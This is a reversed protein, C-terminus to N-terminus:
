IGNCLEKRGCGIVTLDLACQKLHFVDTAIYGRISEKSKHGLVSSVTSLPISKALMANSIRHRFCHLGKEENKEQHVYASKMTKASIQWCAQPSIEKYPPKNIIFIKGSSTEHRENLIYDAISNGVATTLPLHLPEATKQQIINIQKTNWDIDVLNLKAIDCSRVGTEAALLLVAKDRKSHASNILLKVEDEDLVRIIHQPQRIRSPFGCLVSNPIINEHLLYEDFARLANMLVKMSKSYRGNIFRLFKETHKKTICTDNGFNNHLFDMFLGAISVYSRITNKSKDNNSLHDRYERLIENHETSDPKYSYRIATEQGKVYSELVKISRRINVFTSYTMEGSKYNDGLKKYFKMITDAIDGRESDTNLLKKWYPRYNSAITKSSYHREKLYLDLENLLQQHIETMM